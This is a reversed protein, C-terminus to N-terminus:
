RESLQIDPFAEKLAHLRQEDPPFGSLRVRLAKHPIADTFYRIPPTEGDRKVLMLQECRAHETIARVHEPEIMQVDVIVGVSM